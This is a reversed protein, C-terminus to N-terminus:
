YKREGNLVSAIYVIFPVVVCGVLYYWLTDGSLPPLQGNSAYSSWMLGIYTLSIAVWFARNGARARILESREDREEASLRRLATADKGAVRYRILISLGVGVLVIGVGTIIRPDYPLPSYVLGIIVGTLSLIVGAILWIWGWRIKNQLWKNQDSM